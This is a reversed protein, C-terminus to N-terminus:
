KKKKRLLSDVGAGIADPLSVTVLPKDTKSLDPSITLGAVNPGITMRELVPTKDAKASFRIAGGFRQVTYRENFKPGGGGFFGSEQMIKRPPANTGGMLIRVTAAGDAKDHEGARAKFTVSANAESSGGLYGTSDPPETGGDKIDTGDSRITLYFNASDSEGQNINLLHYTKQTDPTDKDKSKFVKTTSKKTTVRKAPQTKTTASKSTTKSAAAGDGKTTEVDAGTMKAVDQGAAEETDEGTTETVSDPDKDGIAKLNLGKIEPIDADTVTLGGTTPEAVPPDEAAQASREAFNASRIAAIAGLVGTIAGIGGYIGGTIASAKAATASEQSAGASQQAAATQLPSDVDSRQLHDQQTHPRLSNLTGPTGTDPDEHSDHESLTSTTGTRASREFSDGPDSVYLGGGIPNGPVPGSAQQVVHTLEHAVLRQGSDTGPAYRGSGFVIHSGATYANAGVAQASEAALEDAHVRVQSFDYGFHPELSSRTTADLPRGPTDMVSRVRDPADPQVVPGAADRQVCVHRGLTAQREFLGASSRNPGSAGNTKALSSSQKSM